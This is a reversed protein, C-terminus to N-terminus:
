RKMVVIERPSAGEKLKGREDFAEWQSTAILYLSDGDAAALTLEEFEPRNAELLEWSTVRRQKADWGLRIIRQPSIGNQVAVLSGSKWLLGDIGVAAVDSATAVPQVNKTAADIAWLGTPYDAVILLSDDGAFALGQPNAIREDKSWLELKGSGPAHRYVAAATTDSVYVNGKSDLELDGFWHKVGDEALEVRATIKRAKINWAILASRGELAPDLGPTMTTAATCIWLLGRKQDVKMGMASWLQDGAIPLKSARGERDVSWVSRGIVTSVFLTGSESHYAVGEPLAGKVDITAARKASGFPAANRALREVVAAFRPMDRLTALDDDDKVPMVVGMSALRELTSLADDNRGNRALAGALNFLVRPHNPRLEDLRNVNELYAPWDESKYADLAARNAERWSQAPAPFAAAVFVAAVCSLLIRNM